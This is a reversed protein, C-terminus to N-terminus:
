NLNKCAFIELLPLNLSCFFCFRVFIFLILNNIEFFCFECAETEGLYLSTHQLARECLQVDDSVHCHHPAFRKGLLPALVWVPHLINQPSSTPIKARRTALVVVAGGPPHSCLAALNSSALDSFARKEDALM